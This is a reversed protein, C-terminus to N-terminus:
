VDVVFRARMAGPTGRIELAHGTVAKIERGPPHRSFDAPEGCAALTVEDGKMTVRATRVLFRDASFLLLAARLVLYLREEPTGAAVRASRTEAPRIFRRDTVLSFVAEVGRACLGPLDDARVEVLIDATHPLYRYGRRTM